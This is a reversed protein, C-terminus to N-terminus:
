GIHVRRPLESVHLDQSSERVVLQVDLCVSETEGTRIKEDLKAMAVRGTEAKPLAVTTLPVEMWPAIALDDFGVVAIDEPVALGAKRFGQVAGWAALDGCCFVATPRQDAPLKLLGEAAAYGGHWDYGAEFVLRPDYPIQYETLARIYGLHRLKGHTDNSLGFHAIRRHGLKILHETALYAGKEHEATVYPSTLSKFATHIQILPIEKELELALPLNSEFVPMWIIGDVGKDRLVQLYEAEKEPNHRHTYLLVSCGLEEAVDQIGQMTESLFSNTLSSVVVGILNTRKNVLGRAMINPRYNLRQAAVLVRRRTEERVQIAKPNNLVRSVTCVSVGAEKAIDKLTTAM